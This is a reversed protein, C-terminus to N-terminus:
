KYFPINCQWCQLMQKTNYPDNISQTQWNIFAFSYFSLMCSNLKSWPNTISEELEWRKPFQPPTHSQTNSELWIEVSSHLLGHWVFDFALLSILREHSALGSNMNLAGHSTPSESVQPKRIQGSYHAVKMTLTEIATATKSKAITWVLFLSPSPLFFTM